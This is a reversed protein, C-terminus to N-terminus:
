GAIRAVALPHIISVANNTKKCEPCYYGEFRVNCLLCFSQRM